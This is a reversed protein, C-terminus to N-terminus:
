RTELNALRKRLTRVQKVWAPADKDDPVPGVQLKVERGTESWTIDASQVVDTITATGGLQVTITDGLTYDRGFRLNPLENLTLEVSATEQGDLVKEEADQAIEDPDDTDRRDGFELVNVGWDNANGTAVKLYRAAGEGQGAILVSTVSPATETLTYASLAGNSQTLRVARSLDRGKYVEFRPQAPSVTTDMYTRFSLGDLKAYKQVEELIVKFRTEITRTKGRGQSTPSVLPRRRDARAGQAVNVRVLEVILNESAAKRNWWGDINQQDVPQSPTPMSITDALYRMHSKGSVTVDTVGDTMSTVREDIVGAIVQVDGDFVAVHSNKQLRNALPNDGDVDIQFTSVDNHRLVATGGLVPLVGRMRRDGDFLRVTLSDQAAM